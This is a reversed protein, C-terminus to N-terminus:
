LTDVHGGVLLRLSTVRDEDHEIATARVDCAVAMAFIVCFGIWGLAAWVFPGTAAVVARRAAATLDPYSAIAAAAVTVTGLWYVSLTRWLWRRRGLEAEYRALERLYLTREDETVGRAMAELEGWAQAHLRARVHETYAHQRHTPLRM